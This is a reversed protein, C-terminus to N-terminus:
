KKNWLKAQVIYINIDRDMAKNILNQTVPCEGTVLIVADTSKKIMRDHNRYGASKGYFDWKPALEIYEYGKQDAYRKGLWGAGSSGTGLVVVSDAAEEKKIFDVIKDIEGFAHSLDMFERSGAILVHRM